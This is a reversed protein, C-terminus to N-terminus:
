NADRIHTYAGVMADNLTIHALTAGEDVVSRSADVSELTVDSFVVTRELEVDVLTAGEMVHVNAGITANELSVSEGIRSEGDLQWAVADLYSELTGIDFWAGDFTYAYTPERSQLWSVFWGPEDPDNGEELYTSLRSLTERPFAYCGISVLTGSPDDPKEEFDVVRDGDLDVVGYATARESSEVNHVAITPADRRDFADLFAALEFGLVNDGAIVLLDDDIGEREILQELAGVVGLKEDEATTEEISLQPKDYGSEALHDAFDDAFRENTSVFVEDVRDITELEAYIRDVVPTEGLPLFMKPRYRTIPWLRTAYGGALVVAKM